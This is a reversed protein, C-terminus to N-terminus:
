IRKIKPYGRFNTWFWLWFAYWNIGILCPRWSQAFLLEIAMSLCRSQHSCTLWSYTSSTKNLKCRLKQGVCQFLMKAKLLPCVFEILSKGLPDGWLKWTLRPSVKSVPMAMTELWGPPLKDTSSWIATEQCPHWFTIDLIWISKPKHRSTLLCM